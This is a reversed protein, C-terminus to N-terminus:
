VSGSRIAAAEYDAQDAFGLAKAAVDRAEDGDRMKLDSLDCIYRMLEHWREREAALLQRVQEATYVDVSTLIVANACHPSEPAPVCRPMRAYPEPLEIESM